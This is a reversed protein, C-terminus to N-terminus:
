DELYNSKLWPLYRNTNFMEAQEIFSMFKIEGASSLFPDYYRQYDVSMYIEDLDAKKIITFIANDFDNVAEKAVAEDVPLKKSFSLQIDNIGALTSGITKDVFTKALNEIKFIYRKIYGVRVIEKIAFKKMVGRIIDNEYCELIKKTDGMAFSDGVTIELIINSNDITLKDGTSENVLLKRGVGSKVLPFKKPNFYSDKSYLIRDVIQGLQDEISFNARFRIGVVMSILSESLQINM